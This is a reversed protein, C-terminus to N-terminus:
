KKILTPKKVLEVKANPNNIFDSNTNDNNTAKNSPQEIVLNESNIKNSEQMSQM